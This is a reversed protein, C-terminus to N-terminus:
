WVLSLRNKTYVCNSLSTDVDTKLHIQSQATPEWPYAYNLLLQYKYCHDCRNKFWTCISGHM